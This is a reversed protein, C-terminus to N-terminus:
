ASIPYTKTLLDTLRKGKLFMFLMSIVGLSLVNELISIINRLFFRTFLELKNSHIVSCMSLGLFYRGISRNFFTNCIPHYLLYLLFTIAKGLKNMRYYTAEDLSDYVKQGCLVAILAILSMIIINDILSSLLRKKIM